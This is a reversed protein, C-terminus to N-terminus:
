VFVNKTVKVPALIRGKMILWKNGYCDILEGSETVDEFGNNTNDSLWNTLDKRTEFQVNNVGNETLDIAMDFVKRVRAQRQRKPKDPVPKSTVTEDKKTEDKKVTEKKKTM